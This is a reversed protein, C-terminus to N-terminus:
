AGQSSAARDPGPLKRRRAQMRSQDYEGRSGPEECNKCRLSDGGELRRQIEVREDSSM